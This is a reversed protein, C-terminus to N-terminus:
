FNWALANIAAESDVRGVRPGEWELGDSSYKWIEWSFDAKDASMNTYYAVYKDRGNTWLYKVCRKVQVLTGAGYNVLM